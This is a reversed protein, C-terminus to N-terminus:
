LMYDVFEQLSYPVRYKERLEGVVLKRLVLFVEQAFLREVPDEQLAIHLLHLLFLNVRVGLPSRSM